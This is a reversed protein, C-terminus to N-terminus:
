GTWVAGTEDTHFSTTAADWRMRVKGAQGHRHKAIILHVKGAEEQHHILVVIDADQEISGSERLNALTPERSQADRNLQALALVPCDCDKALAKLAATFQGVQLYREMRRDETAPLVLGLYDIVLMRLGGIAKRYKAVGCIQTITARPPACIDLELGTLEHRARLLHDFEAESINSERLRRSNVGSISSLSRRILERDKMELSVFLVPGRTAVHQAMQMGLSTKGCGPRAAIIALEGPMMPGLTVDLDILGSLVGPKTVASEKLEALVDDAIAEARRTELGGGGAALFGLQSNLWAIERDPDGSLALRDIVDGSLKRLRRTRWARRIEQVHFPLNHPFSENKIKRLAQITCIDPSVGQAILSAGLTNRDELNVGAAHMVLIAGFAKRCDLDVLMEADIDNAIQDILSADSLMVGLLAREHAKLDASQSDKKPEPM